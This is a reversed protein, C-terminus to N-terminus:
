LGGPPTAGPPPPEGPPGGPGPKPKGGPPPGFAPFPLAKNLGNRIQDAALSGKKEADWSAFWKEFGGVFEERSLRKDKDADLAKVLAPEVMDEPHFEPPGKGGPKQKGLVFGEEEGALQRKVSEARGKAFALMTPSPKGFAFFGGSLPKGEVVSDLRALKQASEEKVAPRIAAALEKVQAEFREPLALEEAVKAMAALYRSRFAEVKFVRELFRKRGEWPERISHRMRDEPDSGVWSGFTHDKDWPIFRLRDDKPDLLLYYNQGTTLISDLDGVWVSVALFRAFADLDVYEGLRSAFEDDSGKSVLRCFEIIRRQQGKKLDTKPDYAQEYASWDDGLDAFVDPASPKLIAVGAGLGRDAVFNKDVNEVISYLGFYKRDHKGPVTVYVRAYSTRPAPVGADRYLRFAISEHMMGADTVNNHLNITTAEGLRQGKVYKNFDIKLSRKLTGRSELFTGNGKYRVAVDPFTKGEFEFDAHVYEFNMGMMGVLGNRLGKKGQLVFPPPGGSGDPKPEPPALLVKLGERAQKSDLGGDGDKDWADFWREGLARFEAASLADDKDADGEKMVSPTLFMGIGFISMDFPNAGEKPEMEAWREPTFRLHVDWVRAPQFLDSTRSPSPTSEGGPAALGLALASAGLLPVGWAAARRVSERRNM